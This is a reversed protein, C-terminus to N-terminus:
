SMWKISVLGYGIIDQEWIKWIEEAKMLSFKHERYRSYQREVSVSSAYVTSYVKVILVFAEEGKFNGSQGESIM